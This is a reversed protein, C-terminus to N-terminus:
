LSCKENIVTDIYWFVAYFLIFVTLVNLEVGNFPLFSLSFAIGALSVAGTACVACGSVGSAVLVSGLAGTETGPKKDSNTLSFVVLSFLVGSLVSMVIILFLVASSTSGPFGTILTKSINMATSFEGQSLFSWVVGFNLILANFTYVLSSISVTLFIYFLNKYILFLNRLNKFNFVQKIHDLLRTM